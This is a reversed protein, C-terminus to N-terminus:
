ARTVQVAPANLASVAIGGGARGIVRILRSPGPPLDFCNDSFQVGEGSESSLTVQRAFADASVEVAGASASASSRPAFPQATGERKGPAAQRLRSVDAPVVPSACELGTVDM